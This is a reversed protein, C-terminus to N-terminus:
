RMEKLSLLGDAARGEIASGKLDRHHSRGGLPSSGRTQIFGEDVQIRPLIPTAFKRISPSILSTVPRIPSFPSSPTSIPNSLQSAHIRNALNQPQPPSSPMPAHLIARNELPSRIMPNLHIKLRSLPIDTQNTRVKYM